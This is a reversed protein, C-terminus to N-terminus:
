PLRKLYTIFKRVEGWSSNEIYDGLGVRASALFEEKIDPDVYFAADLWAEMEEVLIVKPTHYARREKLLPTRCRWHGLEHALVSAGSGSQVKIESKNPLYEGTGYVFDMVSIKLM